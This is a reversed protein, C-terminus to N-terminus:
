GDEIVTAINASLGWRITAGPSFSVPNSAIEAGATTEALFRYRGFNFADFRLTATEGSSVSGILRRAGTEPVAYITLAAPPILNNELRLTTNGETGPATGAGASACGVAFSGALLLVPVIHLPRFRVRM